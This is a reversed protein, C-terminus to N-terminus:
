GRAWRVDQRREGFVAVAVMVLGVILLVVAGIWLSRALADFVAAAADRPIAGDLAGLYLERGVLLLVTVLIMGIALAIGCRRVARWRNPAVVIALTLVVLAALPLLYGLRDLLDVGSQAQEIADSEVLTVTAPATGQAPDLDVTYGLETLAAEVAAYVGSLDVVVADGSLQAGAVSEGTLLAVLQGHALRNGEEWITQFEDSALARRVADAVIQELTEGAPPQVGMVTLKDVAARSIRDAVLDQIASDSALSGVTEVYRDTELVTSRAWSAVLGLPALLAFILVLTLAIGRRAIGARPATAPRYGPRQWARTTVASGSM